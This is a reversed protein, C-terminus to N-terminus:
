MEKGACFFERAKDEISEYIAPIVVEDWCEEVRDKIEEKSLGDLVPILCGAVVEATEDEDLVDSNLVSMDRRAFVSQEPNAAQRRCLVVAKQFVSKEFVLYAHEGQFGGIIFGLSEEMSSQTYRGKSPLVKILREGYEKSIKRIDLAM